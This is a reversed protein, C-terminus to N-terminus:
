PESPEPTMPDFWNGHDGDHGELEGCLLGNDGPQYCPEPSHGDCQSCGCAWSNM